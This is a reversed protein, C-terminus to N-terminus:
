VLAILLKWVVPAGTVLMCSALLDMMVRRGLLSWTRDVCLQVYSKGLRGATATAHRAWKIGPKANCERMLITVSQLAPHLTRKM